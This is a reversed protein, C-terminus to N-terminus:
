VQLFVREYLIFWLLQMEMSQTHDGEIMIIQTKEAM